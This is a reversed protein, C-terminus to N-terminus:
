KEHSQKPKRRWKTTFLTTVLMGTMAGSIVASITHADLMVRAYMTLLMIPIVIVGFWLSYRRVM